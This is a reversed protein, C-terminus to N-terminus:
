LPKIVRCPNGAAFVSAPVSKTVVSGAGITTGNGIEIGPLIIAGGGIWVKKGITVPAANTRYAPLGDREFIREDSTVPHTATYIQVAPGLLTGQGITIKGGDLLVCNFNIFVGRGLHINDGYDCFFPPEIWVGPAWDALLDKLLAQRADPADSRSANYRALLDRARHHRALNEPARTDLASVEAPDPAM